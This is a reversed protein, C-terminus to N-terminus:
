NIIAIATCYFGEIHLICQSLIFKATRENIFLLHGKRPLEFHTLVVAVNDILFGIIQPM